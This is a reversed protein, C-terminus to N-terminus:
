LRPHGLSRQAAASGRHDDSVEVAANTQEGKPLFGDSSEVSLEVPIGTGVLEFLEEVDSNRMRICGMSAPKGISQPKNTGHIGYGKVSLGLWRTGLPNAEGPPVTRDRGYWTPNPIRHVIEFRGVPSPTSPKGVAVDYVRAVRGGDLLLLKRDPLSVVIRRGTSASEEARAQAAALLAVSLLRALQGTASETHKM